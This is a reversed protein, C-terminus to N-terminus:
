GLHTKDQKWHLIPWQSREHGIPNPQKFFIKKNSHHLNQENITKREEFETGDTKNIEKKEKILLM